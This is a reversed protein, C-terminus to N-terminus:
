VFRQAQVEKNEGSSILFFLWPIPVDNISEAKPLEAGLARCLAPCCEHAGVCGLEETVARGAGHGDIAM